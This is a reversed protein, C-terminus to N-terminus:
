LTTFISLDEREIEAEVHSLLSWGCDFTCWTFHIHSTDIHPTPSTVQVRRTLGLSREYRLEEREAIRERYEYSYQLVKPDSNM